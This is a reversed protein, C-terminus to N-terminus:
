RQAPECRRVRRPPADPRGRRRHPRPRASRAHEVRGDADEFELDSELRSEAVRYRSVSTMRIGGFTHEDREGVGHALLSEAVTLSELLLRGGPRLRRRMGTLSRATDEPVLYGFANGWSVVADVPEM